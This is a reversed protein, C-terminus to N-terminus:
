VGINFHFYIYLIQMSWYSFLMVNDSVAMVALYKYATFSRFNPKLLICTIFVNCVFGCPVVLTFVVLTLVPFQTYHAQLKQPTEDPDHTENISNNGMVNNIHSHNKIQNNFVELNSTSNVESSLGTISFMIWLICSIAPIDTTKTMRKPNKKISLLM